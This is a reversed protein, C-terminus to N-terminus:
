TILFLTLLILGLGAWFIYLQIKGGQFSRTFVGIGGALRAINNVTGDVMVRDLWAVVHALTVQIYATGHVLGDIYKKDFLTLLVSLRTVTRGIVMAYLKDLYFTGALASSIESERGPALKNRYLFFSFGLAGFVALLSLVTGPMSSSGKHYWGSFGLPNASVIWWLSCMALVIMPFRM